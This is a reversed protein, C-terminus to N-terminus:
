GAPKKYPVFDQLFVVNKFFGATQDVATVQDLKCLQMGDTRQIVLVDSSDLDDPHATRNVWLTDGDKYVLATKDIVQLESGRTTTICAQPKGAERGDLMEALKEAGTQKEKAAVAAIGGLALTSFALAAIFKRM